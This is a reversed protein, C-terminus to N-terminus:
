VSRKNNNAYNASVVSWLLGVVRVSLDPEGRGGRRSTMDPMQRKYCCLPERVAAVRTVLRRPKPAACTVNLHTVFVEQRVKLSLCFAVSVNRCM